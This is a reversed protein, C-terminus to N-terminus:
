SCCLTHTYTSDHHIGASPDCGSGGRPSWSSSHFPVATSFPMFADRRTFKGDKDLFHDPHFSRPKEWQTEDHLVSGLLPYVTTGKRIFHGRFLVDRTTKHPLGLPTISSLRQTECVVANTFHLIKRDGMTIQRDGVLTKIEDQAREQIHKHKVMYLLGWRLTTSSTDTGGGFYNMVMSMLNEETYHKNNTKQQHLYFADVLGRSKEPDLSEKLRAFFVRNQQKNSKALELYKRRNAIWSFLWPFMYYIQMSPTSSLHIREQSEEVLTTFEPDDYEFRQGYTISCIINSIAYNLSNTNDFPKGKFARWVKVLHQSEEIIKEECARRGMGFDKLTAMSFRRMERWSDGNSWTIGHGSSLEETIVLNDREGFTEDFTHLAEKVTQYGTLVVVKKLGLYLTFVSGFKNSLEMFSTFLRKLDLLLLNGVVPLPPPGPPENRRKDRRFFLLLVLMLIILLFSSSLSPLLERLAM